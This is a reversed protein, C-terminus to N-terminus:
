NSLNEYPLTITVSTGSPKGNEHLDEISFGFNSNRVRGMLKLRNQTISLGQSQHTMKRQKTAAERGIGDDTVVLVLANERKEIHISINGPRNIDRFGHWISNEIFPQLIMSPITISKPDISKDIYTNLHIEQQFRSREFDIYLEILELESELPLFEKRSHNLILRLLKSFKALYSSATNVNEKLIYFRVSNLANFLFHPNMQSRLAQMESNQLELRLKNQKRLLRIRQSFVATLALIILLVFCVQVWAKQWWIKEVELDLVAQELEQEGASVTKLNLTYNGPKLGTYALNMDDTLPRWDEHLGELQYFSKLALANPNLVKLQLQFWNQEPEITLSNYSLAKIKNQVKLQEVEIPGFPMRKLQEVQELRYLGHRGGAWLQTGKKRLWLMDKLGYATSYYLSEGSPPHLSLGNERLTYFIGQHWTFDVLKDSIGLTEWVKKLKFSRSLTVAAGRSLGLTIGRQNVEIEHVIEPQIEIPKFLEEITYTTTEGNVWNGMYHEAVFWLTDQYISIDCIWGNQNPPILMEYESSVLNVRELQGRKSGFYLDGNSSDLYAVTIESPVKYKSGETEVSTLKGDVLTFVQSKTKYALHENFEFFEIGSNAVAEEPLSIDVSKQNEKVKFVENTKSFLSYSFGSVHPQVDMVPSSSPYPTIYQNPQEFRFLGNSTTFYWDPGIQLIGEVEPVIPRGGLNLLQQFTKTKVNFFQLQYQPPGVLILSDNFDGIRRINNRLGTFPESPMYIFKEYKGTTPDVKLLGGGWTAAYLDGDKELLHRVANERSSYPLDTIQDEPGLPFHRVVQKQVFNFVYIGDLTGIYIEQSSRNLQVASSMCNVGRANRSSSVNLPFIDLSKKKPNFGILGEFHNEFWLSGDYEGFIKSVRSSPLSYSTDANSLGSTFRHWDPNYHGLGSDFYGLYIGSDSPLIGSIDNPSIGQDNVIPSLRQFNYRWLGSSSAIYINSDYLYMDKVVGLRAEALQRVQLHVQGTGLLPCLLLLLIVKRM